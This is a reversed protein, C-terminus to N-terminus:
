LNDNEKIEEIGNTIDCRKDVAFTKKTDRLIYKILSIM